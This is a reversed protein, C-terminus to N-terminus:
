NASPNTRQYGIRSWSRSCYYDLVLPACGRQPVTEQGHWQPRGFTESSTGGVPPAGPLGETLARSVTLLGHWLPPAAGGGNKGFARLWRDYRRAARKDAQRAQAAMGSGLRQSRPRVPAPASFTASQSRIGVPTGTL